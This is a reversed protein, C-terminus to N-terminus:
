AGTPNAAINHQAMRAAARQPKVQIKPTGKGLSDAVKDFRSYDLMLHM